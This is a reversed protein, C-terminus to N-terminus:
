PRFRSLFSMLSRLILGNPLGPIGIFIGKPGSQNLLMLQFMGFAMWPTTGPKSVIAVARMFYVILLLPTAPTSSNRVAHMSPPTFRIPQWIVTSRNPKVCSSKMGSTFSYQPAAVKRGIARSASTLRNM